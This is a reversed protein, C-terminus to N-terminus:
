CRWSVRRGKRSGEPRCNKWISCLWHNGHMTDIAGGFDWMGDAACSLSLFHPSTSMRTNDVRKLIGNMLKMYKKFRTVMGCLGSFPARQYSRSKPHTVVLSQRHSYTNLNISFPCGHARRACMDTWDSPVFAQYIVLREREWGHCRLVINRGNELLSRNMVREGVNLLPHIHHQYLSQM